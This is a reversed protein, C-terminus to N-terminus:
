CKQIAKKFANSCAFQRSDLEVIPKIELNGDFNSYNIKEVLIGGKKIPKEITINNVILGAVDIGNNEVAIKISNSDYCSNTNEILAIKVDNTCALKAEANPVDLVTGATIFSSCGTLLLLLLLSIKKM